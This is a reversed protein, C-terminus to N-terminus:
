VRKLFFLPLDCEDLLWLLIAISYKRRFTDSGPLLRRAVHAGLVLSWIVNWDEGTLTKYIARSRRLATSLLEM